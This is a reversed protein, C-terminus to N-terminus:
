QKVYVFEVRCEKKRRKQTYRHMIEVGGRRHQGLTLEKQNIYTIEM